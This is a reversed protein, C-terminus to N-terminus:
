VFLFDRSYDAESDHYILQLLTPLHNIVCLRVSFVQLFVELFKKIFVNVVGHYYIQSCLNLPCNRPLYLIYFQGLFFSFM